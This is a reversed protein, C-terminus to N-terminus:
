RLLEIMEDFTLKSSSSFVTEWKHKVSETGEAVHMTKTIKVYVGKRSTIRFAKSGKGVVVVVVGFRLCLKRPWDKGKKDEGSYEGVPEVFNSVHIIRGAM